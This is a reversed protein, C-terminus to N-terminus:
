TSSLVVYVITTSSHLLLMLKKTLRLALGLIAILSLSLFPQGFVCIRGSLLELNASFKSNSVDHLSLSSKDGDEVYTCWYTGNGYVTILTTTIMEISM